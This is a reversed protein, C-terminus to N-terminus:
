PGRALRTQKQYFTNKATFSTKSMQFTKTVSVWDLTMQAKALKLSDVPSKLNPNITGIISNKATKSGTKSIFSTLQRLSTMKNNASKPNLEGKSAVLNPSICNM